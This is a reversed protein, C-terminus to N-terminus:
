KPLSRRMQVWADYERKAEPFEELRCIIDDVAFPVRKTRFQVQEANSSVLGSTGMSDIWRELIFRLPVCYHLQKARDHDSSVVLHHYIDYLTSFSVNCSWLLRPVWVADFDEKSRMEYSMSELLEVITDVPFVKLSLSSFKAVHEVKRSLSAVIFSFRQTRINRRELLVVNQWIKDVLNRPCEHNATYMIVLCTEWLQHPWAFQNYLESITFLRSNLAEIEHRLSAVGRADEEAPLAEGGPRFRAQLENLIRRQIQAVEAKESLVRVDSESLGGGDAQKVNALAHGLFVIRQNLDMGAGQSEALTVYTAAAEGFRNNATYYEALFPLDSSRLFAELLPSDVDVLEAHLGQQLYWAFVFRLCEENGLRLVLKKLQRYLSGDTLAVPAAPAVSLSVAPISSTINASTSPVPPLVAAADPPIVLSGKYLMELTKVIVDYCRYRDDLNVPRQHDRNQAALLAMEVMGEVFSQERMEEIMSFVDSFPLGAAIKRLLAMSQLQLESRGTSNVPLQGAERLLKVATFHDRDDQNFFLPCAKSLDRSLVETEESYSKMLYAILHNVVTPGTQSTAFDAFTANTLARDNSLREMISVDFENLLILMNLAEISRTLLTVLHSLNTQEVHNPTRGRLNDFVRVVLRPDAPPAASSVGHHTGAFRTREVFSVLSALNDRLLRLEDPSYVTIRNIPVLWIPQLLRTLYLGFGNYRDSYQNQAGFYSGVVNRESSNGGLYLFAAIAWERIQSTAGAHFPVGSPSICCALTLCVSCAEAEGYFSFFLKLEESSDINGQSRGLIAVLQDLPRRREITYLGNNTLCLFRRSPILHQTALENAINPRAVLDPAIDVVAPPLPAENIVWATGNIRISACPEDAASGQEKSIMDFHLGYVVQEAEPIASESAMVLCGYSFFCSQVKCNRNRMDKVPYDVHVVQLAYPKDAYSPTTSFYLRVGSSAVALLHIRSSEAATVPFISVIKLDTASPGYIRAKVSPDNQLDSRVAFQSLQYGDNGLWYGHICSSATLAYLINRTSDFHLEQIPDSAYLRSLFPLYSGVLSQTHNRKRCKKSFWGGPSQYELEYLNGDNGSLFIRGLPTGVVQLMNVDDTPVSLATPQLIMEGSVDDGAFSVGLVVIEVPTTLVLLYRITEVFVGPKPKM